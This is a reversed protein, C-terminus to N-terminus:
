LLRNRGRQNGHASYNAPIKQGEEVPNQNM